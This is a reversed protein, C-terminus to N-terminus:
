GGNKASSWKECEKVFAFFGLISVATWVVGIGSFEKNELAKETRQKTARSMVSNSSDRTLFSMSFIVTNASRKVASNLNLMVIAVSAYFLGGGSFKIPLSSCQDTKYFNSLKGAFQFTNDYSM